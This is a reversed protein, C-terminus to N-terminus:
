KLTKLMETVQYLTDNCLVNLLIMARISNGDNDFIM